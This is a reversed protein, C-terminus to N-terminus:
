AARRLPEFGPQAGSRVPSPAARPVFAVPGVPHRSPRWTAVQIAVLSAMPVFFTTLVLVDFATNM